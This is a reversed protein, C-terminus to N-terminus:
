VKSNYYGTQRTGFAKPGGKKLKVRLRTAEDETIENQRLCYSIIEECEEETNARELFDKISPTYDRFHPPQTEERENVQMVSNLSMGGGKLEEILTPFKIELEDVNFGVFNENHEHEKKEKM